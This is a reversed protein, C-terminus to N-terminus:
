YVDARYIPWLQDWSAWLLQSSPSIFICFPRSATSTHYSPRGSSSTKLLPDGDPPGGSNQLRVKNKKRHKTEELHRGANRPQLASPFLRHKPSFISNSYFFYSDSLSFRLLPLFISEKQSPALRCRRELLWLGVPSFISSGFSYVFTNMGCLSKEKVFPPSGRGWVGGGRGLVCRGGVKMKREEEKVSAMMEVGHCSINVPVFWTNIPVESLLNKLCVSRQTQRLHTSVM